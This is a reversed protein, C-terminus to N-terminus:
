KTLFKRFVTIVITFRFYLTGLLYHENLLFSWKLTFQGSIKFYM